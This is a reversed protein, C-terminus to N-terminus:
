RESGDAYPMRTRDPWGEILAEAEELFSRSDDDDAWRHNKMRDRVDELLVAARDKQGLQFHTMALFTCDYPWHAYKNLNLMESRTLGSIADTYKHEYKSNLMESRTLTSIADTYKGNRYQAIGLTTLYIGSNPELKCAAQAYRLAQRYRDVPAGPRRVISWTAQKIAKANDSRQKAFSLASARVEESIGAHHPLAALVDARLVHRGFLADVLGIAEREVRLAPTMPRADYLLITADDGASALRTGDPSFSVSKVANAHSKLTLLEHGGVLDWLKVTRDYSASALRTGNPSFALSLVPRTHGALTLLEDGSAVDWVKVTMMDNSASACRTGDPSFAPSSVASTQRKLTRLKRGDAVDWVIVSDSGASVLQTGNPNFALSLLSFFPENLTHLKHGDAVNWITVAHSDGSVLRAGDPSFVLSRVDGDAKFTRLELGSAVDWLKVVTSGDSATALRTGDPSFAVSFVRGDHGSLTHLEYGGAVDWLKVTKDESASALRTGDPSFAVKNVGNTHGAFRRTQQDGAVMWLKVKGDYSVSVLRTSDPSFTLGTVHVEHGKYTCLERGSAVDWLKVAKDEGASALLTGDPNFAVRTILDTHGVLTRLERGSAVDWLKVTRDDSASALCSGDPSFAVNRVHGTHGTLKCIEHSADADWLKVWSYGEGGILALRLGDPTFAMSSVAGTYGTVKRLEQGNTLDWLKVSNWDSSALRKGDRSFAVSTVTGSHGSFTRLEKNGVVDWVKVIGHNMGAALLTRDASFAAVWILANGPLIYSRLEQGNVLDWLKVSRNMPKNGPGRMVAELSGDPSLEVPDERPEFFSALLQGDPSLAVPSGSVHFTRLEANCLREQYFWEWGRCDVDDFAPRYSELLEMVQAVDNAEWARQAMNMDLAYELREAKEREAAEQAALQQANEQAEKARAAADRAADDAKTRLGTEQEARDRQQEAYWLGVGTGGLLVLTALAVLAAAAPRRRVWKISREMAGAPRATIPQGRLYRGLDDAMASACAYRKDPPKALAKLCITELDRPSKSQLRSPPVPEDAVVQMVTELPTAAKFPPRGTLLEYLIAGLAYVDAAPGVAQCKGAAQEPAMYSPTGMIAGTATQGATDDLKKALGFDAIKPTGDATLLVNGPKLDRHVIGKQHAAHMARALTEVLQAAERAPLPTGNLKHALSGGDVFELVFYPLGDVEGIEHIQVIHPHQLRAVAEAEKEFRVLEQRDAHAGSLIMKLAVTRKLKVQVAKYVVGMAGRGLVGHLEYGPVSPFRDRMTQQQVHGATDPLRTAYSDSAVSPKPPLTAPGASLEPAAQGDNAGTPVNAVAEVRNDVVVNDAQRFLTRTHQPDGSASPARLADHVAFQRRLAAEHQPFRGVYEEVSSREGREERLVVESYILDFLAETDAALQPESALWAEVL